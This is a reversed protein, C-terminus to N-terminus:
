LDEDLYYRSCKPSADLHYRILHYLISARGENTDPCYYSNEITFEYGCNECTGFVKAKGTKEKNKNM